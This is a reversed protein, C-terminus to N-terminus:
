CANKTQMWEASVTGEINNTFLMHGCLGTAIGLLKQYNYKVKITVYTAYSKVDKV